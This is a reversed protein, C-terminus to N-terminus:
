FKTYMEIRKFFAYLQIIWVVILALVTRVELIGRVDKQIHKRVGGRVLAIKRDRHTKQKRIQKRELSNQYNQEKM